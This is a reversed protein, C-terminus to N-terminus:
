PCGAGIQEIRDTYPVNGPFIWDAVSQFELQEDEQSRYFMIGDKSINSAVPFCRPFRLARSQQGSAASIQLVDGKRQLYVFNGDQSWALPPNALAGPYEIATRSVERGEPASFVILQLKGSSADALVLSLLMGDPSLRASFLEQGTTAAYLVSPEGGGPAFSILEMQGTGFGDSLGRISFLRDPSAQLSHTLTWGKYRAVEKVEPSNRLGQMIRTSFNRSMVNQNLAFWSAKSEYDHAVEFFISDDLWAGGDHNTTQSWFLVKCQTLFLAIFLAQLFRM